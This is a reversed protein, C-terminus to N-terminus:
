KLKEIFDKGKLVRGVGKNLGKIDKVTKIGLKEQAVNWDLENDFYLVIYNHSELLEPSFDYEGKIEEKIQFIDLIDKRDFGVQILEEETFNVLKDLDWEASNKNLRLNLEREKEIDSINVFVVPIETNGMEKWIYFRQHGGIIINKRNENNNVIIPDVIGFRVLSDKLYKKEKATMKRPNYESPLLEDVKM